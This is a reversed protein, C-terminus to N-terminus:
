VRRLSMTKTPGCRECNQRAGEPGCLCLSLAKLRKRKECKGLELREHLVEASRVCDQVIGAPIVRTPICGLVPVLNGNSFPYPTELREVRTLETVFIHAENLRCCTQRLWSDEGAKKRCVKHTQGLRVIGVIHGRENCGCKERADCLKSESGKEIYEAFCTKKARKSVRMAVYDGERGALIGNIEVHTKKVGHFTLRAFNSQVTLVHLKIVEPVVSEREKKKQKRQEKKALAWKAQKETQAGRRRLFCNGCMNSKEGSETVRGKGTCRFLKGLATNANVCPVKWRREGSGIALIKGQGIKNCKGCFEWGVETKPRSWRLCGDGANACRPGVMRRGSRGREGDRCEIGM